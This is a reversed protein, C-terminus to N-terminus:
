LKISNSSVKSPEGCEQTSHAKVYWVYNITLVLNFLLLKTFKSTKRIMNYCTIIIQYKQTFVQFKKLTCIFLVNLMKSTIGLGKGIIEFDISCFYVYKLFLILGHPIHNYYRFPMNILSDKNIQFPIWHFYSGIVIKTKFIRDWFSTTLWTFYLSHFNCNYIHSM